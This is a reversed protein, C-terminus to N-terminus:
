IAVILKPREVASALPRIGLFAFLLLALFPRMSRSRIKQPRSSRKWERNALCIPLWPAAGMVSPGPRGKEKPPEKRNVPHPNAGPSRSWGCFDGRRQCARPRRLRTRHRSLGTGRRTRQVIARRAGDREGRAEARDQATIQASRDFGRGLAG